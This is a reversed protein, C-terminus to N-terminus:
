IEQLKESSALDKYDEVTVQSGFWMFGHYYSNSSALSEDCTAECVILKNVNVWYVHTQPFEGLRLTDLTKKAASYSMFSVLCYCCHDWRGLEDWRDEDAEETFSLDTYFRV